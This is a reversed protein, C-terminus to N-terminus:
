ALWSITEPSQAQRKMAQLFELAYAGNIVRHDYALGLNTYRRTKVQNGEALYLEDLVGAISLMASQGPPIMPVSVVVDPAVNLSVSMHAGALDDGQFSDDMAKRRMGKIGDTLQDLTTGGVDKLNAIFLGKGMDLTIGINVKPGHLVVTEPGKLTGFFEPFKAAQDALMKVFLETLGIPRRGVRGLLADCNVRVVIFVAPINTHSDSVVRGVAVQRKSLTVTQVAQAQSRNALLATIDSRRVFPRGLSGLEEQTIGHEDVLKQAVQTLTFETSALPAGAPKAAPAVAARVPATRAQEATEFVEAMLDGAKCSQGVKANWRIFGAAEIEIEYTAKSDEVIAVVTGPSVQTFDPVVHTTLTVADDNTSVRPTTLEHAM